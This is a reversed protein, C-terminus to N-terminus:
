KKKLYLISCVITTFPIAFLIGLSGVIAQMAEVVIIELNLLDIVSRKFASFLVVVTLSSGIYALVLTNAMTGMIDRGIAFGSNILQKPRIDDANLRIEYLSSSISMAVDMIAGVAGIIIGAFVLARLDVPNDPNIYLIRGANSDLYGTLNVIKGMIVTIVGAVIVGSICGIGAALSKKNAGNIIILTMVIVFICTLISWIYINKGTIISPIFVIFVALTTFLLSIITNIGKTRGFIIILLFFVGILWVVADVRLYDGLFYDYKSDNSDSPYLMVKDGKEVEKLKNEYVGEITQQCVLVQGKKAGSLVKAKFEINVNTLKEAIGVGSKTEKRNVIDVVKAKTGHMEDVGEIEPMHTSAVKKGVFLYLISFIITLIYIITKKSFKAKM